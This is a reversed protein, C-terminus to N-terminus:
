QYLHRYVAHHRYIQQLYLRTESFNITELYLDHDTGAQELWNIANGPGANYAALSAGIQGDFYNLQWDLYYAGFILSVYPRYLDANEYGEWALNNAVFVGTDPIIQSLGQAYATSTAFGEFLSEQRILSFHLLPDYGYQESLPVIMDSFYIPYALRGVLSPVTFPDAGALFIVREAALISSRYLGLDRLYLSLQYSALADGKYDDRVWELERKAEEYWGIDWLKQSRILRLDTSITAPLESSASTYGLQEVFWAEVAARESAEDWELKLLEAPLPAYSSVGNGVDKARLSYYDFGSVVAAQNLYPTPDDATRSLWLLAGRGSGNDYTAALRWAAQAGLVDGMEWKMTGVRFWATSAREDTPYAVAFSEYLPIAKVPDQQFRDALEGTRWAAWPALPHQPYGDKFSLLTTIALSVSVSRTEYGAREEYYRGIVEPNTPDLARYAEFQAYANAYDSVGEYSWALYLHTDAPYAAVTETVGETAVPQTETLVANLASIAPVYAQAYYDVVGRDYNSVPIGGDVLEILGLYSEYARRYDRIGTLYSAYAEPLSGAQQYTAGILYTMEGKTFETFAADRIAEYQAIAAAYNGAQLYYDALQRRSQIRVLYHSEGVVAAEYRAVANGPDLEAIVPEIYAAMDPNAAAYLEYYRLAQAPDATTQALYYYAASNFEQAVGLYELFANVATELDGQDLASLGLGYLAQEHQRQNLPEQLIAYFQEQATETDRLELNRQAIPLYENPPPAPTSTPVTTPQVPENTDVEGIVATPLVPVVTVEAVVVEQLEPVLTPTPLLPASVTATPWVNEAQPEDACAVFVFCILVVFLTM